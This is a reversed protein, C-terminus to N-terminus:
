LFHVISYSNGVKIVSILSVGLGVFISRLLCIKVNNPIKVKDPLGLSIQLCCFLVYTVVKFIHSFSGFDFSILSVTAPFDAIESLAARM